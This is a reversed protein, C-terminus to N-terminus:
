DDDLISGKVSIPKYQSPLDQPQASQEQKAMPMAQTRADHVDDKPAGELVAETILPATTSPIQAQAPVSVDKPLTKELPARSLSVNTKGTLSALWDELIAGQRESSAAVHKHTVLYEELQALLGATGEIELLTHTAPFDEFAVTFSYRKLPSWKGSKAPRGAKAKSM